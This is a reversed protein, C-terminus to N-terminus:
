RSVRERLGHGPGLGRIFFRQQGRLRKRKAHEIPVDCRFDGVKLPSDALVESVTAGADEGVRGSESGSVSTSRLNASWDGAHPSGRM